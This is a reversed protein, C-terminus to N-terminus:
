PSAHPLGEQNAISSSPDYTSYVDLVRSESTDGRHSVPLCITRGAVDNGDYLSCLPKVKRQRRRIM